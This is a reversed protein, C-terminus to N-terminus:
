VDAAGLLDDTLGLYVTGRPWSDDSLMAQPGRTYESALAATVFYWPSPAEVVSMYPRMIRSDRRSVHPRDGPSIM